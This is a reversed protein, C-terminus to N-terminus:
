ILRSAKDIWCEATKDLGQDKLGKNENVNSM